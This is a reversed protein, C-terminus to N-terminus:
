AIRPLMVELTNVRSIVSVMTHLTCRFVIVGTPPASLKELPECLLRHLLGSWVSSAFFHSYLVNAIYVSSLFFFPLGNQENVRITLFAREM